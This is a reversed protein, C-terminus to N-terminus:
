CFSSAVKIAKCLNGLVCADLKEEGAYYAFGSFLPNPNILVLFVAISTQSHLTM